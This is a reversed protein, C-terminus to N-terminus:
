AFSNVQPKHSPLKFYPEQGKADKSSSSDESENRDLLAHRTKQYRHVVHEQKTPEKDKVHDALSSLLYLFLYEEVLAVSELINM